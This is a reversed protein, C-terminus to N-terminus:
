LGSSTELLSAKRSYASSQWLCPVRFLRFQLADMEMKARRDWGHRGFIIRSTQCLVFLDQPQHAQVFNAGIKKIKQQSGHMLVLRGLKPARLGAARPSTTRDSNYSCGGDQSFSAVLYLCDLKFKVRCATEQRSGEASAVKIGSACGTGSQLSIMTSVIPYIKRSRIRSRKM